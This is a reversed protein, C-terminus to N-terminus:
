RELFSLRRIAVTVSRAIRSTYRINSVRTAFVRNQSSRSAGCAMMLRCPLPWVPHQLLRQLLRRLCDRPSGFHWCSRLGRTLRFPRRARRRLEQWSGRCTFTPTLVLVTAGKISKGSRLARPSRRTGRVNHTQSTELPGKANVAVLGPCASASFLRQPARAARHAERQGRLRPHRLSKERSGSFAGIM